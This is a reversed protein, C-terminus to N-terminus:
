DGVSKRKKYPRKNQCNVKHTVFRINGPEYNGNNDIRDIDLGDIDVVPLENIVYDLFEDFSKFCVEIGRGGYYPYSDDNPNICRNLMRFYRSRLAKVIHGLKRYYDQRVKNRDRREKDQNRRERDRNLCKTSYDLISDVYAKHATGDAVMKARKTARIELTAPM